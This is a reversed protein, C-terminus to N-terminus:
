RKGAAEFLVVLERKDSSGFAYRWFVVVFWVSTWM